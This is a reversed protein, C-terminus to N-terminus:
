FPRRCCHEAPPRLLLVHSTLRTELKKTIREKNVIVIDKISYNLIEDIM